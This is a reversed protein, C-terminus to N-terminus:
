ELEFSVAAFCHGICDTDGETKLEVSTAQSEVYASIDDLVHDYVNSGGDPGLLGGWADDEANTGNLVGSVDVDNVYLRDAFQSNVKEQGDLANLFLTLPGGDYTESFQLEFTTENSVGSSTTSTYGAYVDVVRTPDGSRQYVVLISFGEGRLLGVGARSKDTALSITNDDGISIVELPVEAIYAAGYTSGGPLPCTCGECQSFWCLDPSGYGVREGEVETDNIEITDDAPVGTPAPCMLYSWCAFATVPQAGAPLPPIFVDFPESQPTGGQNGYNVRTSNGAVVFNAGAASYSYFPTPGLGTEDPTIQHNRIVAVSLGVVLSALVAISAM